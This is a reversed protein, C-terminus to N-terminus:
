GGRKKSLLGERFVSIRDVGGKKQSNQDSAVGEAGGAGGGGWVCVCACVSRGYVCNFEKVTNKKWNLLASAMIIYHFSSNLNKQHNDLQMHLFSLTGKRGPPM